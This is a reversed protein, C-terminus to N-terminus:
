KYQRLMFCYGAAKKRDQNKCIYVQYLKGFHITEKEWRKQFLKGYFKTDIILICEGDRLLIDFRM